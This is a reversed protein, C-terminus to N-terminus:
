SPRRYTVVTRIVVVGDPRTEQICDVSPLIEGLWDIDNKVMELPVYPPRTRGARDAGIIICTGGFPGMDIGRQLNRLRFAFCATGRAFVRDDCWLQDREDSIMAHDLGDAGILKHMQMILNRPDLEIDHCRQLRPNILYGIMQTKGFM